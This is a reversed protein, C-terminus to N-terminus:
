LRTAAVTLAVAILILLLGLAGLGFRRWWEPDVLRALLRGLSKTWDPLADVIDRATAVAGDGIAGGLDTVDDGWGKLQVDGQMDAWADMVVQRVGDYRQATPDIGASKSWPGWATFGNSAFYAAETSCEPEFACMDNVKPFAVSNFQWLGRDVGRETGPTGPPLPVGSCTRDGNPKQYNYCVATPLGGSEAMMIRAAQLVRAELELQTIPSSKTGDNTDVIRLTDAQVDKRVRKNITAFALLILEAPYLSGNPAPM